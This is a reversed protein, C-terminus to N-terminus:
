EADFDIDRLALEVFFCQEPLLLTRLNRQLGDAVTDDGCVSIAIDFVHVRDGLFQRAPFDVVGATPWQVLDKSPEVLFGALRELIRQDYRYSPVPRDLGHARRQQDTSVTVLEIDLTRGGRNAVALSHDGPAHEHEVVNRLGTLQITTEAIVRTVVDQGPQDITTLELIAELTRQLTGPRALRGVRQQVQIEVLELDNVVGATM